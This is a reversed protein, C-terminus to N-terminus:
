NVTYKLDIYNLKHNHQVVGNKENKNGGILGARVMNQIIRNHKENNGNIWSTNGGNIEMNISIKEFLTDTVNASKELAGNEDVRM